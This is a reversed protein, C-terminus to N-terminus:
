LLDMSSTNTNELTVQPLFILNENFKIQIYYSTM